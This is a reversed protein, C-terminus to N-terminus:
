DLTERPFEVQVNPGYWEAIAAFLEQRSWDKRWGGIVMSSGDVRVMTIQRIYKKGFTPKFVNVIVNQVRGYSPAPGGYIDDPQYAMDFQDETIKEKLNGQLRQM